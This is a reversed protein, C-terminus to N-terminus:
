GIAKRLRAAAARGLRFPSVIERLWLRSEDRSPSEFREICDRNIILSRSLRLFPPDPIMRQYASLTQCVLLPSEQVLYFRVFDGHAELAAVRNLPAVVTREPTRLCLHDTRGPPSPFNESM